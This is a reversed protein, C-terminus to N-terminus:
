PAPRTRLKRKVPKGKRTTWKALSEKWRQSRNRNSTYARSKYVMKGARNYIFWRGQKGDVTMKGILSPMALRIKERMAADALAEKVREESDVYTYRVLDTGNPGDGFETTKIFIERAEERVNPADALTRIQANIADLEANAKTRESILKALSKKLEPVAIDEDVATLKEIKGTLTGIKTEIATQQKRLEKLEQREDENVLSDPEAILYNLFFEEEIEGLRMSPKNPCPSKGGAHRVSCVLYRYEVDKVRQTSVNMVHECNACFCVGKFINPLESKRGRGYVKNKRLINQVRDFSDADIIPPLFKNQELFEGLLTRSQLITRISTGTWCYGRRFTKIGRKNMESALEYLSKGDLIGQVLEKVIETNDNHTYKKTTKDYSFFRPINNHAVIEGRKMKAKREALAEKVKRSKEASEANARIIEGIIFQLINPESDLANRDIIKQIYSGSFVLRIGANICNLFLELSRTPPLRSFRDVSDIILVPRAPIDGAKVLKIFRALDGDKDIHEGKFGSKGADLFKDESLTYGNQECWRKSSAAQRRQSDRGEKGQRATSFRVYSYAIKM